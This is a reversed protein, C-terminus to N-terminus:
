SEQAQALGPDPRIPLLVRSAQVCYAHRFVLDGPYDLHENIRLWPRGQRLVSSLTAKRVEYPERGMASWCTSCKLCACTREGGAGREIQCSSNGCHCVEQGGIGPGKANEEARRMIGTM